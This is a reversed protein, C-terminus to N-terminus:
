GFIHNIIESDKNREIFGKLYGGSSYESYDCEFHITDDFTYTFEGGKWGIFVENTLRRLMDLNEQKTTQKTTSLSCCPEAYIGRWSFVGEIRFNMTDSPWSEIKDYFEGLTM